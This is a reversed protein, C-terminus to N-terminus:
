KRSCVCSNTKANHKRGIYYGIISGGIATQLAFLASEIEGSPPTWISEFWPKYAENSSSIYEMAMGDAGELPGRGAGIQLSVVVIALALLALMLYDKLKM